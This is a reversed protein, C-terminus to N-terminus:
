NPLNPTEFITNEGEVSLELLADPERRNDILIQKTYM